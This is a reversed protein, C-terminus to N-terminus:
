PQFEVFTAEPRFRAFVLSGVPIKLRCFTFATKHSTLYYIENPKKKPEDSIQSKRSPPWGQRTCRLKRCRLCPDHRSILLAAVIDQKRFIRRREKGDNRRITWRLAGNFFNPECLVNSTQLKPFHVPSTVCIACIHMFNIIEIYRVIIFESKM